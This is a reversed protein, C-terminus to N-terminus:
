CSVTIGAKHADAAKPRGVGEVVEHDGEGMSPPPM